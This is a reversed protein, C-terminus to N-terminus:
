PAVPTFGAPPAGTRPKAPKLRGGTYGGALQNTGAVPRADVIPYGQAALDKGVEDRHIRALRTLRDLKSDTSELPSTLGAAVDKLIEAGEGRLPVNKDKSADEILGQLQRMRHYPAAGFGTGPIGATSATPHETLTKIAEQIHDALAMNTSQKEREKEAAEKPILVQKDGVQFIEQGEPVKFSRDAATVTAAPQYHHTKIYDEVDKGARDIRREELAGNLQRVKAAIVPNKSMQAMQATQDQVSQMLLGHVHMEAERKDGTAQFARALLNEGNEWGQQKTALEDKQAAIDRDIAENVSKAGLVSDLKGGSFLIKGLTLGFKELNSKGSWWRNPDIKQARLEQAMADQRAIRDGIIKQAADSSAQETGAIAASEQAKQGLGEAEAANAGQEAEGAQTNARESEQIAVQGAEANARLATDAVPGILSQSSAPVHTTTLPPLGSPATSQDPQFFTAGAASRSAPASIEQTPMQLGPPTNITQGGLQLPTNALMPSVPPATPYALSGGPVYQAPPVGLAPAAPTSFDLPTTAAIGTPPAPAAMSGGPVIQGQAQQALFQATLDNPDDIAM